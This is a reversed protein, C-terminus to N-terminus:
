YGHEWPGNVSVSFILFTREVNATCSGLPKIRLVTGTLDTVVKM